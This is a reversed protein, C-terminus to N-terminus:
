AEKKREMAQVLRTHAAIVSDWTRTEFMHRMLNFCDLIDDTLKSPRTVLASIERSKSQERRSEKALESDSLALFADALLGVLNGAESIASQGTVQMYSMSIASIYVGIERIVSSSVSLKNIEAILQKHSGGDGTLQDHFIRPSVMFEATKTIIRSLVQIALSAAPLKERFEYPSKELLERIKTLEEISNTKSIGLHISTAIYNNNAEESLFASIKNPTIPDDICAGLEKAINMGIETFLPENLLFDLREFAHRIDVLRLRFQAFAAKTEGARYAYMAVLVSAGTFLSGSVTAITNVDM